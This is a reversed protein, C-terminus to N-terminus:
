LRCSMVVSALCFGSRTFFVMRGPIPWPAKWFLRVPDHGAVNRWLGGSSPRLVLGKDRHAETIILDEIIVYPESAEQHLTVFSVGALHGKLYCLATRVAPSIGQCAM